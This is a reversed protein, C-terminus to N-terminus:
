RDSVGRRGTNCCTLVTSLSTSHLDFCAGPARLLLLEAASCVRLGCLTLTCVSANDTGSDKEGSGHKLTSVIDAGGEKLHTAANKAKNMMIRNATSLSFSFYNSDENVRAISSLYSPDM